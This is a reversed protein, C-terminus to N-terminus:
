IRIKCKRATEEAGNVWVVRRHTELGSCFVCCVNITTRLALFSVRSDCLSGTQASTFCLFSRPCDIQFKSQDAASVKFAYRESEYDHCTLVHVHHDRFEVEHRSYDHSM